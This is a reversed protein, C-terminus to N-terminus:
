SLSLFFIFNFFNIFFSYPFVTEKTSSGRLLVYNKQLNAFIDVWFYIYLCYIAIWEDIM